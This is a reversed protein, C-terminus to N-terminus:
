GTRRRSGATSENGLACYEHCRFAHRMSRELFGNLAQRNVRRHFRAQANSEFNLCRQRFHRALIQPLSAFLSYRIPFPSYRIAFLSHVLLIRLARTPSGARLTGGPNHAQTIQSRRRQAQREGFVMPAANSQNPPRAPRPAESHFLLCPGRRAGVRSTRPPPHFCGTLGHGGRCGRQVRSSASQRFRISRPCRPGRPDGGEM